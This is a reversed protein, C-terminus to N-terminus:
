CCSLRFFLAALPTLSAAQRQVKWSRDPIHRRHTAASPDSEVSECNLKHRYAAAFVEGCQTCTALSSTSDRIMHDVKHKYLRQVLLATKSLLLAPSSREDHSLPQELYPQNHPNAMEATAHVTLM